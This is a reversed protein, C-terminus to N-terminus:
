QRSLFSSQRSLSKAKFIENHRLMFKKTAMGKTNSKLISTTVSFESGKHKTQQVYIIKTAVSIKNSKTTFKSHLTVIPNEKNRCFNKRSSAGHQFNQRLMFVSTEVLKHQIREMKQRSLAVKQRSM